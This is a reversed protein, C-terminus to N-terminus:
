KKVEQLMRAFDAESRTDLVEALAVLWAALNLAELRTIPRRPLAQIVITEAQAGVLFHNATDFPGPKPSPYQNLGGGPQEHNSIM